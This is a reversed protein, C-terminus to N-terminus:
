TRRTFNRRWFGNVTRLPATIRWSRSALLSDMQAKAVASEAVHAAVAGIRARRETDLAGKADEHAAHLSALQRLLETRECMVRDLDAQIYAAAQAAARASADLDGGLRDAEAKLAAQASAAEGLAWRLHSMEGALTTRDAATLELEGALRAQDARLAANSDLAETLAWRLHAMEEVLLGRAVNAAELDRGLRDSDAKRDAREAAARELLERFGAMEALAACMGHEAADRAAIADELREPLGDMAQIAVDRDALALRVADHQSLLLDLRAQLAAESEVAGKLADREARVTELEAELAERREDQERRLRGHTEYRERTAQLRAASIATQSKEPSIGLYGCLKEAGRAYYDDVKHFDFAGHKADFASIWYEREINLRAIRPDLAAFFDYMYSIVFSYERVDADKFHRLEGENERYEAFAPYLEVMVIRRGRDLAPKLHMEYLKRISSSWVERYRPHRWSIVEFPVNLITDLTMREGHVYDNFETVFTGDVEVPATYFDRLLDILLVDWEATFLTRTFEKLFDGVIFKSRLPCSPFTFRDTPLPPSVLSATASRIVIPGIAADPMYDVIQSLNCGGLQAFVLQKPALAPRGGKPRRASHIEVHETSRRDSHM